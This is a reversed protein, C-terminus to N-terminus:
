QWLFEGDHWSITGKVQVVFPTLGVQAILIILVIQAIMVVLAVLVNLATLSILSKLFTLILCILNKFCKINDTNNSKCQIYIESESYRSIEAMM